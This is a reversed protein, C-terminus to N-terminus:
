FLIRSVLRKRGSRRVPVLDCAVDLEAVVGSGSEGARLWVMVVCIARIVPHTASVNM